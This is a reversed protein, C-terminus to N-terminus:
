LEADATLSSLYFRTSTNGANVYFSFAKQSLSNTTASSSVASTVGDIVTYNVSPIDRLEVPFGVFGDRSNNTTDTIYLYRIGDLTYYFRQCKAINVAELDPVFATKKDGEELKFDAFIVGHPDTGVDTFYASVSVGRNLADINGTVTVEFEYYGAYDELIINKVMLDTVASFDDASNAASVKLYFKSLDIAGSSAATVYVRGSFTFTNTGFSGKEIRQEVGITGSTSNMLWLATLGSPPALSVPVNGRGIGGAGLLIFRDPGYDGLPMGTVDRQWYSFDGNIIKSPNVLTKPVSEVKADLEDINEKVTTGTLTSNVNNSSVSGAEMEIIKLDGESLLFWDMTAPAPSTLVVEDTISSITYDVDPRYLVGGIQLRHMKAIDNELGAASLRTEGLAVTGSWTKRTYGADKITATSVWTKIQVIDDDSVLPGSSLIISTGNSSYESPPLLTGNLYVDTYGVSHPITFTDVGAGPASQYDKFVEHGSDTERFGGVIHWDGTAENFSWTLRAGDVDIFYETDGEVTHSTSPHPVVRVNYISANENYDGIVAESGGDPKEPLTITVTDTVAADETKVLAGLGVELQTNGTVYANISGGSGGGAGSAGYQVWGIGPMRILSVGGNQVKLELDETSNNIYSTSSLFLPFDKWSSSVDFFSVRSYAPANPDLTLVFSGSITSVPYLYGSTVTTASSLTVDALPLGNMTVWRGDVVAEIAKQDTSVRVSGSTVSGREATNGYPIILAGLRALNLGWQKILNNM